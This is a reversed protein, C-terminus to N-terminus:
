GTILISFGSALATFVMSTDDTQVLVEFYDNTALLIPQTRFSFYADGLAAIQGFAGVGLYDASGNKTITYLGSSAGQTWGTLRVTAFVIGYRGNMSSPITIRSTNSSTDHFTDTDFQEAAWTLQTNNFNSSASDSTNKVLAAATASLPTYTVFSRSYGIIM